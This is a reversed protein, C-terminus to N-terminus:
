VAENAPQPGATVRHQLFDALPNYPHARTGGRAPGGAQSGGGSM